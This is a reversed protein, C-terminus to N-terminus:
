GSIEIQVRTSRRAKKPVIVTLIGSSFRASINQVDSDSPLLFRRAFPGYTREMVQYAGATVDRERRREGYIVLYGDRAEVQIRDQDVGPLEMELIFNAETEYADAPPQWVPFRERTWGGSSSLAEDMMENIEERMNRLDQWPYFTYRGM